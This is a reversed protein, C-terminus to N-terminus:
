IMLFQLTDVIVLWTELKESLIQLLEWNTGSFNDIPFANYRIYPM